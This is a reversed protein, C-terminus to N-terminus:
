PIGKKPTKESPRIEKARHRRFCSMKRKQTISTTYTGLGHAEEDAIFCTKMRYHVLLQIKRWDLDPKQSLDQAGFKLFVGFFCHHAGERSTCQKQVGQM